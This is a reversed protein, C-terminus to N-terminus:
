RLGGAGWDFDYQFQNADQWDSIWSKKLTERLYDRATSGAVFPEDDVGVVIAPVSTVGAKFAAAVRAHGDHIYFKRGVFVATIPHKADFDTGRMADAMSAVSAADLSKISQTPILTRPSVWAFPRQLHQVRQRIRAAVDAPAVYTTDVLIDYNRINEIDVDYLKKFRSVESARRRITKDVAEAVSSYVEDPRNEVWIREAAKETLCFLYVKLAAKVFHWAMRSEIVLSDGTEGIGILYNDIQRDVAPDAEAAVNLELSTKGQAAAIRRQIAGTSILEFGLQSSLLRGVTSKGGGIDGAIAILKPQDAM